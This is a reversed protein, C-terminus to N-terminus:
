ASDRRADMYSIMEDFVDQDYCIFYDQGFMITWELAPEEYYRQGNVDLLDYYLVYEAHRKERNNWDIMRMTFVEGNGETYVNLCTCLGDQVLPRSDYFSVLLHKIEPDDKQYCYLRADWNGHEIHTEGDLERVTVLLLLMNHRDLETQLYRNVRPVAYTVIFDDGLQRTFFVEGKEAKTLDLKMAYPKYASDIWPEFEEPSTETVVDTDAAMVKAVAAPSFLLCCSILGLFMLRFLILFHKKTKM